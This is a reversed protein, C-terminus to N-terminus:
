SRRDPHERKTAELDAQTFTVLQTVKAAKRYDGPVINQAEHKTDVDVIMWAKHENDKCGWEARALFHSGTRLFTDIAHQCAQLTKEHPVEILFRPM